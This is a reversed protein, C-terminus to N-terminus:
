LQVATAQNNVQFYPKQDAQRPFFLQKSLSNISTKENFYRNIKLLTKYSM